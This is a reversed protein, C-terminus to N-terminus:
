IVYHGFYDSGIYIDLNDLVNERKGRYKLVLTTQTYTKRIKKFAIM